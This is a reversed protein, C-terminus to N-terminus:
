GGELAVATRMAGLHGGARLGGVDNLVTGIGLHVAVVIADRTLSLPADVLVM